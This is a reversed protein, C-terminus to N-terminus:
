SFILKDVTTRVCFLRHAVISLLFVGLVCLIFSMAFLKSIVLALVFLLVVDALAVDIIPIRLRHVGERPLGLMDKCKCFSSDPAAAARSAFQSALQKVEAEAFAFDRFTKPRGDHSPFVRIGPVIDEYHACDFGFTGNGNGCTLGGHVSIENEIDVYWRLFDPHEKPLMVYGNWSWSPTRLLRCEIGNHAFLYERNPYNKIDQIWPGDPLETKECGTLFPM